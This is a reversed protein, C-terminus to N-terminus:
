LLTGTRPLLEAYIRGLATIAGEDIHVVKRASLYFAADDSPDARRFYSSPFSPSKPEMDRTNWLDRGLPDDIMFRTLRMRFAESPCTPAEQGSSFPSLM